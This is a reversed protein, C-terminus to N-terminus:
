FNSCLNGLVRHVGRPDAGAASFYFPTVTILNVLSKEPEGGCKDILM